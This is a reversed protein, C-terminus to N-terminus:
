HLGLDRDLKGFWTWGDRGPVVKGLIVARQAWITGTKASVVLTPGLGAPGFPQRYPLSGVHVPDQAGDRDDRCARIGGPSGHEESSNAEPRAQAYRSM